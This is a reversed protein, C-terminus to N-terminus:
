SVFMNCGDGQLFLVHKDSFKKVHVLVKVASQGLGGEVGDV